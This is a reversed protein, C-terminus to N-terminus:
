SLLRALAFGVLAALAFTAVWGFFSSGVGLFGHERGSAAEARAGRLRWRVAPAVYVIVLGIVIASPLWIMVFGTWGTVADPQDRLVRVYLDALAGGAAVLILYKARFM